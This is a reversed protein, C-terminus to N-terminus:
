CQARIDNDSSLIAALCEDIQRRIIINNRWWLLCAVVGFVVVLM